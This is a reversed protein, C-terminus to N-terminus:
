NVRKAHAVCEVVTYSIDYLRNSYTNSRCLSKRHVALPCFLAKDRGLLEPVLEYSGLPHFFTQRPKTPFGFWFDPTPHVGSGRFGM